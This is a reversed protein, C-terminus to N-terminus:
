TDGGVITPRQALVRGDAAIVVVAASEGLRSDDEVMVSSSGTEAIPAPKNLLSSSADGPRSRVDLLAGPPADDVHVRVRLQVWRLEAISTPAAAAARSVSIVPVISEQPSVGGHEYKVGAEFCKIGPAVAIRVDHDWYWPLVSVDVPMESDLRACRGKRKITLHQPLDIKPLGGPLLLWGHDTVVCVSNWGADLLASVRDAIEGLRRGLDRPLRDPFKHGFADIIGAETWARDNPRPDGTDEGELVNFGSEAILQRLVAANQSAGTAKVTCGFLAGPGLLSAAPSVAPKATATVTPVAAFARDTAAILGRRVLESELQRGLDYRLGDVFVVCTGPSESRTDYPAPLNGAKAAALMAEQFRRASADAWPRYLGDVVTEVASLDAATDVVGLATVLSSDALWAGGTYADAIEAISGEPLLSTTAHALHRIHALAEALPAQGLKAWVWGRREAHESWLGDIASRIEDAHHGALAVLEARLKAERNRNEQPWSSPAATLLELPQVQELLKVIGPFSGPADAFTAWVRAWDGQRGGLLEAATLAGDKEPDFDFERECAATFAGWAGADLDAKIEDPANMWRTLQRVPDPNLLRDFDSARLPAQARLREVPEAAIQRIARRAAERTDSSNPAAVEIGLGQEINGLYGVLTWDNLNRQTFFVSRFVLEALTRLSPPCEEVARLEARSVGPLYVVPTVDSPRKWGVAGALVCRIWEAPGTMSGPDYDGLTVLPLRDRLMGALEVFECGEDTWIVAAPAIQSDSNYEAAKELSGALHDLLTGPPAVVTTM